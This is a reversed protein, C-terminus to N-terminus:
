EALRCLDRHLVVGTRWRWHPKPESYAHTQVIFRPLLGEPLVEYQIVFGWVQAALLSKIEDPQNEGLLEPVLYCPRKGSIQFCLQFKEMLTLLFDHTSRPYDQKSLVRTLDGIKLVGHRHHKEKQGERLLTYIGKPSGDRISCTRTVCGRTM